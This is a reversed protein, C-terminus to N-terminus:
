TTARFLGNVYGTETIIDKNLIAIFVPAEMGSFLDPTTVLFGQPKQLFDGLEELESPAGTFAISHKNTNARIIEVVKKVDIFPEVDSVLDCLVVVRSVLIM